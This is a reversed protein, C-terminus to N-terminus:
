KKSPWKKDKPFPLECKGTGTGCDKDKFCFDGKHCEKRGCVCYRDFYACM